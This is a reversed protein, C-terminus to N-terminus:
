RPSRARRRVSASRAVIGVSCALAFVAGVAVSMGVYWAVDGVGVSDDPIEELMLLWVFTLSTPVVASWLTSWRPRIVGLTGAVILFVLSFLIEFVLALTGRVGAFAFRPSACSRLESAGVPSSRDPLLRAPSGLAGRLYAFGDFVTIEGAGM